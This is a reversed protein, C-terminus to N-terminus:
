GDAVQTPAGVVRMVVVALDGVTVWGAGIEHEPIQWGMESELFIILELLDLSDFDLCPRPDESAWFCTEATIETEAVVPGKVTRIGLKIADLVADADLQKPKTPESASM